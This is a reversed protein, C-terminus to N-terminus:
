RLLHWLALWLDRTVMRDFVGTLRVSLSGYEYKGQAVTYIHLLHM